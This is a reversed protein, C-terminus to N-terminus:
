LLAVGIMIPSPAVAFGYGAVMLTVPAGLTVPVIRMVSKSRVCARGSSRSIRSTAGFPWAITNIASEPPMFASVPFPTVSVKSSAAPATSGSEAGSVVRLYSGVVQIEGTAGKIAGAGAPGYASGPWVRPPAIFRFLTKPGTWGFPAQCNNM